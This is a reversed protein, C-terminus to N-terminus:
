EEQKIKIRLAKTDEHYFIKHRLSFGKKV